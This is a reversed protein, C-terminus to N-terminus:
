EMRVPQADMQTNWLFWADSQKRQVPDLTRVEAKGEEGMIIEQNEVIQLWQELSVEVPGPIVRVPSPIEYVPSDIPKPPSLPQQPAAPTPSPFSAPTKGFIDASSAEAEGFPRHIGVSGKVVTTQTQTPRVEMAFTTGLVAAVSHRARIVMKKNPTPRVQNWVRGKQLQALTQKTAPNDSILLLHSAPGIRLRSGDSFTLEVRGNSGTTVAQGPKVLQGKKVSANGSVHTVRGGAKVRLTQPAMLLPSLILLGMLLWHSTSIRREKIM